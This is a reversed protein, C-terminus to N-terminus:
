DKPLVMEEWTFISSFGKKHFYEEYNEFKSTMVFDGGWAGLSKVFSPCDSFYRQKVKELGLFQSLTNEHTEMLYSFESLSECSLTKLTLDSFDAILKPDKAKSKYLKIGERSDQKQNLHIFILEDKFPPNFRVEKIMREKGILQYLISSQKMAVAVDYGSGGLALDNLEFLNIDAWQALNNMLTSSSGLGFNSPFQLNTKLSYSTNEQLKTSSLQQVKQLTKLIFEASEPLNSTIIKWNQYDIEADLWLKNQHLATWHIIGQADEKEETYLEQGLRTPIALALAGDLILYESTLLLKGHSFFHKM